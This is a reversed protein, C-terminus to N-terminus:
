WTIQVTGLFFGVANAFFRYILAGVVFLPISGAIPIALVTQVIVSLSAGMAVTIVLGNAWIKSMAIEFPILPIALLHDTTGHEREPM